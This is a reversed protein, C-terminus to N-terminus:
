TLCLYFYLYGYDGATLVLVKIPLRNNDEFFRLNDHKFVLASVGLLLDESEEDLGADVGDGSYFSKYIFYASLISFSVTFFNM